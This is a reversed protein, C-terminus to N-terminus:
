PTGSIRLCRPLPVWWRWPCPTGPGPSSRPYPPRWMPRPCGSGPGSAVGVGHALAEDLGAVERSFRLEPHAAAAGVIGDYAEPNTRRLSKMLLALSKRGSQLVLPAATPGVVGALTQLLPGAGAAEATDMAASAALGYGVDQAVNRGIMRAGEKYAGRAVAKVGAKGVGTLFGTGVDTLLNVPDM